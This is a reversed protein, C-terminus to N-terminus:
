KKEKLNRGRPYTAKPTTNYPVPIAGRVAAASTDFENIHSAM